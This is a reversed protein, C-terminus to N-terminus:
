LSVRIYYPNGQTTGAYVLKGFLDEFVLEAPADPFMVHAACPANGNFQKHALFYVTEGCHENAPIILFRELDLNLIKDLKALHDQELTQGQNLVLYLTAVCKKATIDIARNRALKEAVIDVKYDLESEDLIRFIGQTKVKGNCIVAVLSPQFAQNKLSIITKQLAVEDLEELYVYVETRAAIEARVVMELNAPNYKEAWDKPRRASCFRGSIKHVGYDFKVIAGNAMFKKHRGLACQNNKLNEEHIANPKYFVCGGCDTEIQM